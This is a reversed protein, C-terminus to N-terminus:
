SGGVGGSSGGAGCRRDCPGGVVLCRLPGSLRLCRGTRRCPTATTRLARGGLRAGKRVLDPVVPGPLTNIEGFLLVALDHDSGLDADSVDSRVYTCDLAREAAVQRACEISAPSIVVGLCSCGPAALRETNLGPSCGLDLVSGPRGDMITEFLWSVQADITELRRSAHDHRQDLHERLM